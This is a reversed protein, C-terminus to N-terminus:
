SREEQLASMDTADRRGLTLHHQMLELLPLILVYRVERSTEPLELLGKLPRRQEGDKM